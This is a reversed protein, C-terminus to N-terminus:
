SNVHSGLQSTLILIWTHTEFTWPRALRGCLRAVLCPKWSNLSSSLARNGEGAFHSLCSSSGDMQAEFSLMTGLM